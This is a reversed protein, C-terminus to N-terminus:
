KSKQVFRFVFTRFEYRLYNEQETILTARPFSEAIVEKLKNTAPQDAGGSYPIAPLTHDESDTM